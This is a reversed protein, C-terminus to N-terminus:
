AVDHEARTLRMLAPVYVFWSMVSAALLTIHIGVAGCVLTNFLYFVIAGISVMQSQVSILSCRYSPEISNQFISYKIPAFLTYAVTQAVYLAPLLLAPTLPLLFAATLSLRVCAMKRAFSREDIKRILSPVVFGVAASVFLQVAITLGAAVSDMGRESLIMTFYDELAVYAFAQSADMAYASLLIENGAVFKTIERVSMGTRGTTAINGVKLEHMFAVVVLALVMAAIDCMLGLQYACSMSILGGLYASLAYSAYFVFREIVNLKVLLRKPVSDIYIAEISGSLCAISLGKLVFVGIMFLPNRVVMLAFYYALTGVMGLIGSTKRGFRDSIYGTPMELLFKSVQYALLMSSISVLSFGVYKLYVTLFYLITSFNSLFVFAMYLPINKNMRMRRVM